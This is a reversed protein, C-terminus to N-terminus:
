QNKNKERKKEYFFKSNIHIKMNTKTKELEFAMKCWSEWIIQRMQQMFIHRNILQFKVTFSSWWVNVITSQCKRFFFYFEYHSYFQQKGNEHKTSNWLLSLMQKYSLFWGTMGNAAKFDSYVFSNPFCYQKLLRDTGFLISKFAVVFSSNSANCSSIISQVGDRGLLHTDIIENSQISQTKIEKTHFVEGWFYVLKLAVVAFIVPSISNSSMSSNSVLFASLFRSTLSFFSESDFPPCECDFRRVHM